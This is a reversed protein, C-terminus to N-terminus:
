QEPSSSAEGMFHPSARSQPCSIHAQVYPNVERLRLRWMQFYISLLVQGAQRLHSKETELSLIHTKFSHWLSFHLLHGHHWKVHSNSAKRLLSGTTRTSLLSSRLMTQSINKMEVGGVRPHLCRYWACLISLLNMYDYNVWAIGFEYSNMYTCTLSFMTVRLLSLQSDERSWLNQLKARCWVWRWCNTHLNGPGLWAWQIMVM